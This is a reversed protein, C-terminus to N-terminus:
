RRRRFRKRRRRLPPTASPPPPTPMGAFLLADLESILADHDVTSSPEPAPSPVVVGEDPRSLSSDCGTGSDGATSVREGEAEVIRRADDRADALIHDRETNLTVMLKIIDEAADERIRAAEQVAAERLQDREEGAARWQQEREETAERELTSAKAEADRLM